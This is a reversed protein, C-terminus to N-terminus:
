THTDGNTAKNVSAVDLCDATDHIDLTTVKGLAAM